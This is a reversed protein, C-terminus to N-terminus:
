RGVGPLCYSKRRSDRARTACGGSHHRELFSVGYQRLLREAASRRREGNRRQCNAAVDDGCGIGGVDAECRTAAGGSLYDLGGGAGAYRRCGIWRVEALRDCEGGRHGGGGSHGATRYGESLVGGNEGRSDGHGASAMGGEAG